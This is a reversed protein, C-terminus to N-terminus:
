LEDYQFDDLQRKLRRDALVDELQSWAAKPRKASPKTKKSVRDIYRDLDHDGGSDNETTFDDDLDFSEEDRDM